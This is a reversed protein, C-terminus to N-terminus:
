PTIVSIVGSAKMGIDADFTVLPIGLNQAVVVYFADGARLSHQAAADIANSILRAELPVITLSALNDLYNAFQRAASVNGWSRSIAAAVEVLILAPAIMQGGAFTFQDLWLKSAAHNSDQPILWSVWVNADIVVPGPLGAASVM